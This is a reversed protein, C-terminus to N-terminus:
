DSDDDYYATGATIEDIGHEYSNDIDTENESPLANNPLASELNNEAELIEHTEPAELKLIKQKPLNPNLIERFVVNHTFFQKPDLTMRGQTTTDIILAKVNEQNKIRSFSTYLQGHAFFPRPLYIGLREITQGQGRNGTIAYGPRFPFQLRTLKFPFNDMESTLPMRPIFARHGTKICVAEVLNEHLRLVRMRTGNCLGLRVNINRLLIIIQNIKVNLVHPPM